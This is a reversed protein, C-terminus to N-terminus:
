RGSVGRRVVAHGREPSRPSVSRDRHPNKAHCRGERDLPLALRQFAPPTWRSGIAPQVVHRSGRGYRCFPRRAQETSPFTVRAPGIIALPEHREQAGVGAPDSEDAADIGVDLLEHAGKAVDEARVGHRDATYETLSQRLRWVGDVGRKQPPGQEGIQVNQEPLWPEREVRHADELLLRAARRHDCHPRPHHDATRRCTGTIGPAQSRMRRRDPRAWSPTAEFERPVTTARAM